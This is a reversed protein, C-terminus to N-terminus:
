QRQESENKYSRTRGNKGRKILEVLEKFRKIKITNIAIYSKRIICNNIYKM